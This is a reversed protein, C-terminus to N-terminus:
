IGSARYIAYPRKVMVGATANTFAESYTKERQETGLTQFKTPVVQIMTRSDDTGSENM